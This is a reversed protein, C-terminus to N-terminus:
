GFLSKAPKAQASNAAAGFTGSQAQAPTNGSIKTTRDRIEGDWKAKWTNIFAAETAGARIEATTMSDKSRFFKDIENVDRTEGTPSYIGDDGKTTKDVTQKQVGALIEQNLLDMIVPVETPVEAKAESNWLKVVKTETSLKEPEKGVTLLCLSQFLSFGPLYIKKGDKEYYNKNGKKDGSTVWLTQRLERKDEGTFHLVVSMAGGDSKKVYAMAVKLGYVASDWPGSGGVSDTESQISDDTNLTGLLSM